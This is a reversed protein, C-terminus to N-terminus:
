YTSILIYKETNTIITLYNLYSWRYFPPSAWTKFFLYLRQILHEHLLYLVTDVTIRKTHTHAHTHENTHPCFVANRPHQKELTTTYMKSISNRLSRSSVLHTLIGICVRSIQRKSM